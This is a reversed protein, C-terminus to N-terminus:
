QPSLTGFVARLLTHVDDDYSLEWVMMGRLDNSRVYAAKNAVSQPNEYSIAIRRSENYMWPVRAEEDFYRIYNESEFFPALDRYYLMGGPRTGSPVGGAPQYLGFYGNSVVNRWTQAYFPIGIVIKRAPVGADLYANVAGAVNADNELSPNRANDYLPAHHSALDSWAGQFGYTMINIWDLHLHIESLEFNEYFAEIAPANITLLSRVGEEVALLEIEDRFAELLRTFNERDEPEGGFQGGSVPYRWDINIGNFAFEQMFGVCSRALRQRGEETSAAASFNRSNEWGGITMLVQLGPNDERLLWLQNFNGRVRDTTLDGPYPYEVDAWEDISVCQGNESVDIYGYNIHTLLDAPIDTVFYDHDYINYYSYHGVIVYDLDDTQASTTALGVVLTSLAWIVIFWQRISM